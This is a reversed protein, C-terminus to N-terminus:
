NGLTSYMELLIGSIKKYIHSISCFIAIGERIYVSQFFYSVHGCPAIAPSVRESMCLPCTMRSTNESNNASNIIISSQNVSSSETSALSPVIREVSQLFSDEHDDVQSIHEELEMGENRGPMFIRNRLRQRRTDQYSQMKYFADMIVTATGKCLLATNQLVLLFGLIRYSPRTSNHHQHISLLNEPSENRLRLSLFRHTLISPYRGNLYFLALHLRLVWKLTAIFYNNANSSSGDDETPTPIAQVNTSEDLEQEEITAM